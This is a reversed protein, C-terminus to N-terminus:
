MHPNHLSNRHDLNAVQMVFKFSGGGHDEGLKIWVQDEPIVDGRWTLSGQKDYLSLYHMVIELLSPFFVMSAM